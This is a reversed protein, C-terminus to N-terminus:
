GAPAFVTFAVGNSPVAAVTPLEQLDYTLVELKGAACFSVEGGGLPEVFHASGSSEKWSASAIPHAISTGNTPTLCYAGTAAREVATFGPHSGQFGVSPNVLVTAFAGPNGPVGQAGQPGTAGRDGKAGTAGRAGTAGKAGKAGKQGDLTSIALPTLKTAEISARKIKPGTIAGNRIQKTGVSNKTLQTAAVAAGGGLVLFLCLTSIVNAYTLKSRLARM